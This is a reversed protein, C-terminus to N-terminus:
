QLQILFRYFSAGGSDAGSYSVVQNQALIASAGPVDSWVGVGLNDCRQLRYIRTKGEYGTGGAQIAKFSVQMQGAEWNIQLGPSSLPDFPDTGAMYESLNLCGDHDSDDQPAMGLVGLGGFHVIEWADPLGNADSDLPGVVLEASYGSENGAANLTTVAFYNTLGEQLNSVRATAVNAVNTFGSYIGSQIGHYIRYGVVDTLPTGDVNNTPPDWALSIEAAQLSTVGSILVLTALIMRGLRRLESNQKM